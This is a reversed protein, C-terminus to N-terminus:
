CAHRQGPSCGRRAPLNRSRSAGCALVDEGRGPPAAPAPPARRAPAGLRAADVVSSRERVADCDDAPVGRAAGAGAPAGSEGHTCPSARALRHPAHARARLKLIVGAIACTRAAADRGPQLPTAPHPNCRPATPVPRGCAAPPARACPQQASTGRKVSEPTDQRPPARALKLPRPVPAPRSPAPVVGPPAAALSSARSRSVTSPSIRSARGLVRQSSTAPRPAAFCARGPGRLGDTAEHPTAGAPSQAMARRWPM